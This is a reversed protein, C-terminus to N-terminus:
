RVYKLLTNLIFDGEVEVMREIASKLTDANTTQVKHRINERLSQTELTTSAGSTNAGDYPEGENYSSPGEHTTPVEPENVPTLTEIRWNKEQAKVETESWRGIEGQLHQKLYSYVLEVEHDQVKAVDDM